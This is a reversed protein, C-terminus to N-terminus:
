KFLVHFLIKAFFILIRKFFTHYLALCTSCTILAEKVSADVVLGSYSSFMLAVKFRERCECRLLTIKECTFILEMLFLNPSKSLITSPFM